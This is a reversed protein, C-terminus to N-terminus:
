AVSLPNVTKQVNQSVISRSPMSKPVPCPKFIGGVFKKTSKAAKIPPYPDKSHEPYISFTGAKCGGIIKGPSTPQFPKYKDKNSIGASKSPFTKDSHFPNEQFFEKCHSSLKFPGAKRKKASADMEKKRLEKPRDYPESSNKHYTGITVDIYGYGTGKKGPNALFNRGPSTYKDKGRQGPSFSDFRGTFCGYFSGIGSPRKTDSTPVWSKGLNRRAENIRQKRRIKVIDTYAEGEMIRDFKENFYGTQLGSRAKTCSTMMQRGKEAATNMSKNGKSAYKDGITIYGLEKFVGLREMDTKAAM